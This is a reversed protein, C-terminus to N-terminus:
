RQLRDGHVSLQDDLPKNTVGIHKSGKYSHQTLGM